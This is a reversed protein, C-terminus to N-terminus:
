VSECLLKRFRTVASNVEFGLFANRQMLRHRESGLHSRANEILKVVTDTSWGDCLNFESYGYTKHLDGLPPTIIACLNAMGELLLVPTDVTSSLKRYPLLLIDTDRLIHMLNEDTKPSWREYYVPEYVINPDVLLTEHMQITEHRHSWAFGCVRTEINPWGALHRFVDVAESTGKGPDLRGAYTIRLKGDEPKDEPNCFYSEPVPPLLLEASKSWKSVCTYIRQSLCFLKGDFPFCRAEAFLLERKLRLDNWGSYIHHFRFREKQSRRFRAFHLRDQCKLYISVVHGCEISKLYKLAESFTKFYKLCIKQDICCGKNTTAGYHVFHVSDGLNALENALRRVISDTGGIHNYDFSDKFGIFVIKM